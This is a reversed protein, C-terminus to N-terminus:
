RATPEVPEAQPQDLKYYRLANDCVIQRREDEPVGAVLKEVLALSNPWDTAHHPFDTAWMIKDVGIVDRVRIAFYDDQIGWSFHRKVFYSPPHELEFDAWYRHRDYNTDAQECYFPVWGAGAEAFAFQLAPFREFAKSTILQSVCYGTEPGQGSTRTIVYNLPMSRFTDAAGQEAARGGGFQVHVSLPMGSELAAAWFLDDVEPNPLPTGNPWQHLMVTRIGPMGSVRRLEAVTDEICTVPLMACGLLRDYDHACFEGSLWDNYGQALAVYADRPVAVTDLQYQGMLVPFLIESDVGDEDLERLRQAGDGSGPPRDAYAVTGQYSAGHRNRGAALSRGISVPEEHGRILWGDGGDALRVVEPVWERFEPDVWDRWQDPSCELHSDASIYHYDRM